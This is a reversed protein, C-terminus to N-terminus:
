RIPGKLLITPAVRILYQISGQRQTWIWRVTNTYSHSEYRVSYAVDRGMERSRAPTKRGSEYPKQSRSKGHIRLDFDGTTDSKKNGGSSLYM